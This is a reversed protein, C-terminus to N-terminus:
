EKEREARRRLGAQELQDLARTVHRHDLWIWLSVGFLILAAILYAALIFGFHPDTLM